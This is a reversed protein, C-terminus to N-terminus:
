DTRIGPQNGSWVPGIPRQRSRFFISISNGEGHERHGGTDETNLRKAANRELRIAAAGFFKFARAMGYPRTRAM